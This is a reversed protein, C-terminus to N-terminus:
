RQYFLQSAYKTLEALVFVMLLLNGMVFPSPNFFLTAFTAFVGAVLLAYANRNAKLSATQEQETQAPVNGAGIALVTQLIAETAIILALTTLALPWYGEPMPLDLRLLSAPQLLAFLKVLYYLAIAAIVVLSIGASKPYFSSNVQSEKTFITTAQKM